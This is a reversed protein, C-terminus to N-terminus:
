NRSILRLGFSIKGQNIDSASVGAPLVEGFIWPYAYGINLAFQSGLPILLDVSAEMQLFINYALPTVASGGGIDYGLGIKVFNLDILYGYHIYEFVTTFTNAKLTSFDNPITLASIDKGLGFAGYPTLVSGKVTSSLLTTSASPSAKAGYALFYDAANLPLLALAGALLLKKM